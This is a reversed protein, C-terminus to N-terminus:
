FSSLRKILRCRFDCPKPYLPALTPHPITKPRNFITNPPCNRSQNLPLDLPCARANVQASFGIILALLVVAAFSLISIIHWKKLKRGSKKVRKVKKAKKM